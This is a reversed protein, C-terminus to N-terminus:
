RQYVVQGDFVTMDVPIQSIENAPVAFYDAGLVQLDALKGPEISGREAEAHDQYAGNITYMRAVTERDCALEPQIPAGDMGARTVACQAAHLWDVPFVCADSGGTMVVGRDAYLQWAFPEPFRESLSPLMFPAAAPQVCMVVGGAAMRAADESLFEDCHLIVHRPGQGAPFRGAPGAPAGGAQAALIADLAADSAMGGIAHLIAQYGKDHIHRVTRFIEERQEEDTDGPFSSRGRGEAGAAGAGAGKGGAGAGGAGKPPRHWTASDIFLKVADAKVRAPDSFEPLSGEMGALSAAVNDYGHAGDVGCLLGVSVRATLRGARGLREYAHVARESWAGCALADGGSGLIDTHSTVGARNLMAQVRMACGELEEDTLMDAHKGVLSQAGFESLWGDPAGDPFRGIKGAWPPLDPTGAGVGAAASNVFAGHAGFEVLFVPNDPTVDDVDLRTLRRGPEARVEELMGGMLGMGVIWRGKPLEKARAALMDRLGKVSACKPWNADLTGPGHMFGTLVAHMHSDCAGPMLLRGRLDVVETGRGILPRVDADSGVAAIRNGRVAVAQAFSFAGDLTAAKGNVFALTAPGRGEAAGAGAM